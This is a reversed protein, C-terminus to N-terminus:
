DFHFEKQCVLYSDVLVQYDLYYERYTKGIFRAAFAMLIPTVPIKDITQRNLLAYIREKSNM